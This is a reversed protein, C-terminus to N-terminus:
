KNDRKEMYGTENLFLIWQIEDWGKTLKNIQKIDRTKWTRVKRIYRKFKLIAREHREVRKVLRKAKWLELNM